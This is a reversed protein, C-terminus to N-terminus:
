IQMFLHDWLFVRKLCASFIFLYIMYSLYFGTTQFSWYIYRYYFGQWHGSLTLDFLICCVKNNILFGTLCKMNIVLKAFVIFLWITLVLLYVLLNLFCLITVNVEGQFNAVRETLRDFGNNWFSSLQCIIENASIIFM